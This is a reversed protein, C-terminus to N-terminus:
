RRTLVVTLTWDEFADAEPDAAFRRELRAFYDDTASDPTGSRAGPAFLHERLNSETFGRVFAAYATGYAAADHDTRWRDLYPNAVPDTRALVVAFRDALPGGADVPARAEDVTRACVPLVYRDVVGADLTGDRVMDAAVQAMASLLARATVRPEASAPPTDTGVMQVILRAGPALDEARAALFAEWDAAGQTRLTERAPGTAECFYFGEPVTVDPQTRLWHAASFSMGLHVTAAPTAPEFFSRASALPLVAPGSARLYSHPDERLNAFLTNWDNTPVDNHIAAVPRRPDRTRVADVATRLSAISNRGTSCGYDAIVFTAGARLDPAHTVADRVLEDGSAAVKRQYESHDDYYGGRKMGETTAM